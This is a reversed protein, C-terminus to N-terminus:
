KAEYSTKLCSGEIQLWMYADFREVGEEFGHMVYNTQLTGWMIRLVCNRTINPRAPQLYFRELFGAAEM